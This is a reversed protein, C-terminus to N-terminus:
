RFFFKLLLTLIYDGSRVPGTLKGIGASLIRSKDDFAIAFVSIFIGAVGVYFVLLTTSVAKLPGSVMVNNVGGAVAASLAMMAGGYYKMDHPQDEDKREEKTFLLPPQVVFIVGIAM